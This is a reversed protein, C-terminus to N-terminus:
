LLLGLQKIQNRFDEFDKYVFGKMGLDQATEVYHEKRGVYVCDSSPLSLRECALSFIKPDPKSLREKASNIMVEFFSGLNWEKVFRAMLKDLGNNIFAFKMRDKKSKLFEMLPANLEKEDFLMQLVEDTSKHYYEELKKWFEEEPIEGSEAKHWMEVDPFIPIYFLGKQLAIIGGFDFIIAKM